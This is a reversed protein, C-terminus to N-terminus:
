RLPRVRGGSASADQDDVGVRPKRVAEGLREAPGSVVHQSGGCAFQRKEKQAVPLARDAPEVGLSGEGAQDVAPEQGVLMTVVMWVPRCDDRRALGPERRPTIDYQPLRFRRNDKRGQPLVLPERRKVCAVAERVKGPDPTPQFLLDVGGGATVGILTGIPCSSSGTVGTITVPAVRQGCQGAEIIFRLVDLPTAADAAMVSGAFGDPQDNVRIAPACQLM